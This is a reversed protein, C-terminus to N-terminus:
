RGNGKRMELEALVARLIAQWRDPDLTGLVESLLQEVEAPTKAALWGAVTGGNIGLGLIM